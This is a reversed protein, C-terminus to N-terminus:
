ASLDTFGRYKRLKQHIRDDIWLENTNPDYLMRWWQNTDVHIVKQLPMWNGLEVEDSRSFWSRRGKAVIAQADQTGMERLANEQAFTLFSGMKNPQVHFAQCMGERTRAVICHCPVHWGSVLVKADTRESLGDMPATTYEHSRLHANFEPSEDDTYSIEEILNADENAEINGGEFM